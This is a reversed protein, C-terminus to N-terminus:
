IEDECGCKRAGDTRLDIDFSGVDILAKKLRADAAYRANNAAEHAIDLKVRELSGTDKPLNISALYIARYAATAVDAEQALRELNNM